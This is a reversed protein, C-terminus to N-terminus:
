EHPKSLSSGFSRPLTLMNIGRKGGFTLLLKSMRAAYNFPDLSLALSYFNIAQEIRADRAELNGLKRAREGLRKGVYPLLRPEDAVFHLAVNAHHRMLTNRKATLASPHLRKYLLPDPVAAMQCLRLLRFYFETDEFVPIEENFGGVADFAVRRM